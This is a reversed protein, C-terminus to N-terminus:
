GTRVVERGRQGPGGDAIDAPAALVQPQGDIGVGQDGVEAHAALEHDALRVPREGRVDPGPEREGVAAGIQAEHVLAREPM